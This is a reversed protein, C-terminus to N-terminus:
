DVISPGGRNWRGNFQYVHANPSEYDVAIRTTNLHHQIAELSDGHLATQLPAPARRLKLCTEGDINMTQPQPPTSFTGPHLM